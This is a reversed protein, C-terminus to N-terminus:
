EEEPTVNKLRKEPRFKKPNYIIEYEEEGRDEISFGAGDYEPGQDEEPTVNVLGYTVGLIPSYEMGLEENMTKKDSM